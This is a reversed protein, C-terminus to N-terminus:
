YVSFRARYQYTTWAGTGAIIAGGQAILDEEKDLIWHCAGVLARSNDWFVKFLSALHFARPLVYLM